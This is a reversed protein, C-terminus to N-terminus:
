RMIVVGNAVSLQTPMLSYTRGDNATVIIMQLSGDSGTVLQSVTGVHAGTITQVGLGTTLGPIPASAVSTAPAAVASPEEQKVKPKKRIRPTKEWIGTNPRDAMATGSFVVASGALLAIITRRLM